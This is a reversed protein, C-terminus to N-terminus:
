LNTIEAIRYLQKDIIRPRAMAVEIDEDFIKNNKIGVVRSTKGALLADVAHAGFKAALVRDAMTPMGGRQIHGLTTTRISIDVIRTKVQRLLEEAKMVGESLIIIDSKKGAKQNKFIRKCLTDLNFPLEPVLIIEAGGSIGAYLAIDGCNRGMVEVIIVRDHSHMTDRLRNIADLVTNVATDFGLTYDTYALDNDITGPICMTNIGFNATLDKGGAFSGNGGIIVLADVGFQNLTDVAAKQGELKIFELCRATKLMTGGRNIIDAVSRSNLETLTKDLLGQFGREIGFVKLGKYGAYRTVARVCANMGPADGGSTLVGITKIKKNMAKIIYHRM